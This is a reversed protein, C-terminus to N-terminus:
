FGQRASEPSGRQDWSSQPDSLAWVLGEVAAATTQWRPDEICHVTSTELSVM